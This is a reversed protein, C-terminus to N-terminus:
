CVNVIPKNECEHKYQYTRPILYIFIIYTINEIWLTRKIM